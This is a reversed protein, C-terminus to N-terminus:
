RSFDRRTRTTQNPQTKKQVAVIFDAGHERLISSNVNLCRLTGSRQVNFCGSDNSFLVVNLTVVQGFSAVKPRLRLILFVEAFLQTKTSKRQNRFNSSGKDNTCTKYPNFLVLRSKKKFLIKNTSVLTKGLHTRIVRLLRQSSTMLASTVSM